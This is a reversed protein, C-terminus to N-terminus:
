VEMVVFGADDWDAGDKAEGMWVKRVGEHIYYANPICFVDAGWAIPNDATGVPNDQAKYERCVVVGNIETCVWDFGLKDSQVDYKKIGGLDMITNYVGQMTEIKRTNAEHESQRKDMWDTLKM